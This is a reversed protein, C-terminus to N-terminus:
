PLSDGPFSKCSHVEYTFIGAAVGPDGDMIKKAEDISSNFIGVGSYDSNDTVPCVISLLGDSPLSFNRRGHEWIIKEFGTIGYNPGQKLIVVSYNRSKTLMQRMYDDNIEAM